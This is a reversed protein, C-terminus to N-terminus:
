DTRTGSIQTISRPKVTSRRSESIDQTHRPSHPRRGHAFNMACRRWLSRSGAPRSLQRRKISNAGRLKTDRLHHASESRLSTVEVELEAIRKTQAIAENMTKQLVKGQVEIQMQLTVERDSIIRITM